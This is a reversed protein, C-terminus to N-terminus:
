VLSVQNVALLFSLLIFDETILNKYTESPSNQELPEFSTSKQTPCFHVSGDVCFKLNGDM